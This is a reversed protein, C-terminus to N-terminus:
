GETRKSVRPQRARVFLTSRLSGFDIKVGFHIFNVKAPLIQGNVM